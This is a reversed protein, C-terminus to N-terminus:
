ETRDSSSGFYKFLAFGVVAIIVISVWNAPEQLATVFTDITANTETSSGSVDKFKTLVISLIVIVIALSGWAQVETGLKKAIAM